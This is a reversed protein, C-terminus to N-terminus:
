PHVELRILKRPLFYLCLSLDAHAQQFPVHIANLREFPLMSLSLHFTIKFAHAFTYNIPNYISPIHM